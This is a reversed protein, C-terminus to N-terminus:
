RDEVWPAPTSRLWDLASMSETGETPASSIADALTDYLTDLADRLEEAQGLVVRLEPDTM